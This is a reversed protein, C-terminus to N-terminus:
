SNGGVRLVDKQDSTHLIDESRLNKEEEEQEKRIRTIRRVYIYIHISICIYIQDRIKLRM